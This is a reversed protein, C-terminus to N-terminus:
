TQGATSVLVSDARVEAPLPKHPCRHKADGTDMSFRTATEMRRKGIESPPTYVRCVM